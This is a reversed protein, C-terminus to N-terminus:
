GGVGPNLVWPAVVCLIPSAWSVQVDFEALGNGTDIHVSDSQRVIWGLCQSGDGRTVVCRKDWATDPVGQEHERYFAVHGRMPAFRRSAAWRVGAMSSMDDAFPAAPTTDEVNPPLPIIQFDSDILGTIPVLRNRSLVQSPEVGLAECYAIFTDVTLRRDGKELRHIQPSSIGMQRAVWAASRNKQLRLRRLASVQFRTSTERGGATDDDDVM